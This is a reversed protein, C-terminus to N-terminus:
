SIPVKIKAARRLQLLKVVIIFLNLNLEIMIIDVQVFDSIDSVLLCYFLVTIHANKISMSENSKM